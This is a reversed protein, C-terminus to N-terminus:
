SFFTMISILFFFLSVWEFYQEMEINTYMYLMCSKWEEQSVEHRCGGGVTKGKWGFMKLNSCPTESDIHYRMTPAFVNHEEAFFTSSFYAIEKLAFAKAICGEERAKNSVMARLKKLAREIHYMWQYQVHGGVKAEYPLHVLYHQTINMFGPPFIKEMKCILVPVQKELMEMMQVTIEKACLQRYFFSLEALVRWV